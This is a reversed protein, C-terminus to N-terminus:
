RLFSRSSFILGIMMSFCLLSSGGKTFFPLPLGVVPILGSVMLINLLFSFGIVLCFYTGLFYPSLDDTLRKQEMSIVTTLVIFLGLLMFISLVGLFGFQEAYISFIFDTDAEPLFNFENQKSNLFGEGFLGGSGISIESQLINWKESLSQDSSFWSIIREKQYATLGFSYIIPSLLIGLGAMGIFYIRHMGCIFLLMLGLLIYVLGTGLDPQIIIPTASIFLVGLLFIARFSNFQFSYFRLYQIVFIAFTIKMFESPQLSLFGFDLWRKSGKVESGLFEVSLVIIINFLFLVWGVSLIRNLNIQNFILTVLLIAFTNILLFRIFYYIDISTVSYVTLSGVFIILALCFIITSTRLDLIM